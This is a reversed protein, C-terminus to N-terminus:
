CEQKDWGAAHRKVGNTARKASLRKAVISTHCRVSYLSPLSPSPRMPTSMGPPIPSSLGHCAQKRTKPRSPKSGCILAQPMPSASLSLINFRSGPYPPIGTPRWLGDSDNKSKAQAQAQAQTSAQALLIGHAHSQLVVPHSPRPRRVLPISQTGGNLIFVGQALRCASVSDTMLGVTGVGLM